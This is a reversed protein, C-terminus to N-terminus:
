WPNFWTRRVWLRTLLPKDVILWCLVHLRYLLRQLPGMPEWIELCDACSPPLHTLTLCWGGKGWLFYEQYENRNCASEVGPGYHPRFSKTLSFDWHCWRSDYGRGEPKYRLAQVLQAVAHGCLVHLFNFYLRGVNVVGHTSHFSVSDLSFITQLGFSWVEGVSIVSTPNEHQIDWLHPQKQFSFSLQNIFFLLWNFNGRGSRKFSVLSARAYLPM